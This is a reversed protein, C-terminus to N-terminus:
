KRDERRRDSMEKALREQRVHFGSLKRSQQLEQIIPKYEEDIIGPPSGAFPTGVLPMFTHAHINAGMGGMTKMHDITLEIDENDEGPLGFIIDVDVKFGNEILLDVARQTEKVSHGRDILKLMKESGSQSGIAIKESNGYKKLLAVSEPTITEPRVESPFSGFYIKGDQGIIGRIGGLLEEVKELNVVKGDISGYSLANPSVFRIDPRRENFYNKTETVYKLILDISRHRVSNGTNRIQCFRCKWACGRTIEIPRPLGYKVSFPPFKDLDIPSSRVTKVIKDNSIFAIGNIDDYPLNQIFNLITHTIVREGEGTCVIDVGRQLLSKPQGLAHPGGAIILLNKDIFYDRYGTIKEQVQILQSSFVSFGVMVKDYKSFDIDLQEPDKNFNPLYIDIDKLIPHIETAAILASIANGNSRRYPFILCFSAIDM